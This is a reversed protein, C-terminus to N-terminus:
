EALIIKNKYYHVKVPILTPIQPKEFLKSSFDINNFM